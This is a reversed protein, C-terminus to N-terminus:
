RAEGMDQAELLLRLTQASTREEVEAMFVDASPLFYGDAPWLDGVPPPDAFTAVKEPYHVYAERVSRRLAQVLSLAESISIEDEPYSWTTAGMVDGVQWDTKPSNPDSNHCVVCAEASAIDSFMATQFGIDPDLFFQPEGTRRIVQFHETQLGTFKNADNIPFDSGLFLYLPVPSRCLGKATERLFLAPLPGAHTPTIPDDELSTDQHCHTCFGITPQTVRVGQHETHCAVCMHAEIHERADAFRPELFRSIPHRDDPREHCDLCAANGVDESGFGITSERLGLWDYVNSNLQQAATGAVASHCEQCGLGEHGTNMPGKAVLANRDPFTLFAVLLLGLAVVSQLASIDGIYSCRESLM